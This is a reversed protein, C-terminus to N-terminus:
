IAVVPLVTQHMQRLFEDFDPRHKNANVLAVSELKGANDDNTTLARALTGHQLCDDSM